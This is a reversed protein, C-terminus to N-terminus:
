VRKACLKSRSIKAKQLQRDQLDSINRGRQSGSRITHLETHDTLSIDVEIGEKVFKMKMLDLLNGSIHSVQRITYFETDYLNPSGELSIKYMYVIYNQTM